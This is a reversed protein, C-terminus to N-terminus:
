RDRDRDLVAHVVADLAALAAEVDALRRRHQAALRGELRARPPRM